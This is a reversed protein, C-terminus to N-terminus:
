LAHVLNRHKMQYITSKKKVEGDQVQKASEPDRSHAVSPLQINEFVLLAELGDLLYWKIICERKFKSNKHSGENSRNITSFFTNFSESELLSSEASKLTKLFATTLFIGHFFFHHEL